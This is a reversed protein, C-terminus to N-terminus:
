RRSPVGDHSPRRADDGDRDVEGQDVVADAAPVVDGRRWGPPHVLLDLEEFTIWGSWPAFGLVPLLAFLAPTAAWFRWALGAVLLWLLLAIVASLPYHLALSLGLGASLASLLAPAWALRRQTPLVTM